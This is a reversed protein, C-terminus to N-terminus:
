NRLSLALLMGATYSLFGTAPIPPRGDIIASDLLPADSGFRVYLILEDRYVRIALM